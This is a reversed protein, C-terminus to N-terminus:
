VMLEEALNTRMSFEYGLSILGRVLILSLSSLSVIMVLEELLESLWVM